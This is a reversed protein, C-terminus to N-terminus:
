SRTSPSSSYSSGSDPSSGLTSFSYKRTRKSRALYLCIFESPHLSHTFSSDMFGMRTGSRAGSCSVANSSRYREVRLTRRLVRAWITKSAASRPRVAPLYGLYHTAALLRNPSPELAVQGLSDLAQAVRRLRASWALYRLLIALPQHLRDAATRAAQPQRERQPGQPPQGVVHGLLGADPHLVLGGPHM